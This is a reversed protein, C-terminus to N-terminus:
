NGLQKSRAVDINGKDVADKKFYFGYIYVGASNAPVFWENGSQSITVYYTTGQYNMYIRRSGQEVLFGSKKVELENCGSDCTLLSLKYKVDFPDNSNRTKPAVQVSRQRRVTNRLSLIGDSGSTNGSSARTSYQNSYSSEPIFVFTDGNVNNGGEILLYVKSFMFNGSPDKEFGVLENLFPDTLFGGQKLEIKRGKKDFRYKRTPVVLKNGDYIDKQYVIGGATSDRQEFAAGNFLVLEQSLTQYTRAISNTDIETARIAADSFPVNPEFAPAFTEKSCSALFFLVVSFIILKKM